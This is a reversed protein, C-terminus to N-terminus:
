KNTNHKQNEIFEQICPLIEQVSHIPYCITELPCWGTQTRNIIHDVCQGYKVKIGTPQLLSLAPQSIIDAYIEKVGGAIMLAAAAKGIVKDAVSANKLFAPERHLLKYLDAVGRQRFIRTERNAIVCSCQEEHLLRILEEM